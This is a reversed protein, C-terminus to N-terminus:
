EKSEKARLAERTEWVGYGKGFLSGGAFALVTFSGTDAWFISIVGATIGAAAGILMLSKPKM